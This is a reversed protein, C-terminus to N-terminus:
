PRVTVPTEIVLLRGSRLTVRATRARRVNSLGRSSGLLLPEDVLPFELAETTVGEAASGVPLLSVVDGMRGPLIATGPADDARLLTIRAGHEDYLVLRIPPQLASHQLLALNALAHDVREGGLAGLLVLDDASRAAIELAVETDSADKAVPLREIPVGAAELAALESADISDGDGVWRDIRLGLAAAHRAGGDAAVVIEVREDWGPWSADLTLRDPAAGDALVIASRREPLM